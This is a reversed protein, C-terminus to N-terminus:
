CLKLNLFVIKINSYSYTKGHKSTFGFKLLNDVVPILFALTKGSGTKATGIIDKQLLIHPLAEAQIQTPKELGMVDLAKLIRSDIKGQLMSFNSLAIIQQINM